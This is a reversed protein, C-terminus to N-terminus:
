LPIQHYTLVLPIDDLHWFLLLDHSIDSDFIHWRLRPIIFIHWTIHWFWLYTMWTKSYNYYTGHYTLVLSIDPIISSTIQYYTTDFNIRGHTHILWHVCYEPYSLKNINASDIEDFSKNNLNKCKNRTYKLNNEVIIKKWKWSLMYLWVQRLPWRQIITV